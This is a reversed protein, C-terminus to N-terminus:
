DVFDSKQERVKNTGRDAIYIQGDASSTVSCPSFHEPCHRYDLNWILGDQSVIRVSAPRTTCIAIPHKMTVDWTVSTLCMDIDCDRTQTLGTPVKSYPKFNSDLVTVHDHTNEDIIYVFEENGCMAAMAFDSFVTMRKFKHSVTNFQYIAKGGKEAFFIFDGSLFMVTPCDVGDTKKKKKAMLKYEPGKLNLFVTSFTGLIDKKWSSAWMSDGKFICNSVSKVPSGKISKVDKLRQIVLSFDPQDATSPSRSVPKKRRPGGMSKYSRESQKDTACSSGDVSYLSQVSKSLDTHRTLTGQDNTEDLSSSYYGLLQEKLYKRKLKQDFIQLYIPHTYALDVVESEDPLESLKNELLFNGAEGLFESSSPRNQLAEVKKHLENRRSELNELQLVEEDLKATQEKTQKQVEEKLEDRINELQAIVQKTQNDIRDLELEQTLGIRQKLNKLRSQREKSKEGQEDCKSLFIKLQQRIEQEKNRSFVRHFKHKSNSCFECVYHGCNECFYNATIETHGVCATKAVEAEKKWRSALAGVNLVNM